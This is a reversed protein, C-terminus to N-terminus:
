GLRKRGMRRKTDYRDNLEQWGAFRSRRGDGAKGICYEGGQIEKDGADTEVLVRRKADQSSLGIGGSMISKKRSM